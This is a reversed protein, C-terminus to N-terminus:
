LKKAGGEALKRLKKCSTKPGIGILIDNKMMQTTKRPNFLWKSGRRIAIIHIGTETKLRLEGLTQNMLISNQGIMARTISEDSEQLAEKIIPHLERNDLVLQSMNRAASAVRKASEVVEVVSLLKKALHTERSASFLHILLKEEIEETREYLEVVESAIDKSSFFVSSYALDLMLSSLNKIEELLEKVNEQM